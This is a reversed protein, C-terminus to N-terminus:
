GWGRPAIIRRYIDDNWQLDFVLTVVHDTLMLDIHSIAPLNPDNTPWGPGPPTGDGTGGPPRYGSPPQMPTGGITPAGGPPPPPPPRESQGPRQGSGPLGSGPGPPFTGGPPFGSGPPFGLGPPFISGPMIPGGSTLNRFEVPTNLFLTMALAANTLGPTLHEKVADVASAESDMTLRVTAIMQKPTFANLSAAIFRTRSLVPEVVATVPQYDSKLLKSNYLGPVLQEAYLIAAPNGTESGMEQLVRKLKPDISLYLPNEAIQASSGPLPTGVVSLFKPNGKDDLDALFKELQALEAIIVHQSDYVCIGYTQKGAAKADPAVPLKELYDGFLSSM